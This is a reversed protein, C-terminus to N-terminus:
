LRLFQYYVLIFHALNCVLRTNASRARSGVNEVFSQNVLPEGWVISQNQQQLRIIDSSSVSRSSISANSSATPGRSAIPYVAVETLRYDALNCDPRLVEDFNDTFLCIFHLENEM